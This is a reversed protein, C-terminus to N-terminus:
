CLYIARPWIQCFNGLNSLNIASKGEEVYAMGWIKSAWIAPSKLDLGSAIQLRPSKSDSRNRPLLSFVGVGLVLNLMQINSLVGPRKVVLGRGTCNVM